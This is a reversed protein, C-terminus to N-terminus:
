LVGAADATQAQEVVELVDDLSLPGVFQDDHIVIDLARPQCLDHVNTPPM